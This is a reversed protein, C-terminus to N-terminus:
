ELESNLRVFVLKPEPWRGLVRNIPTFLDKVAPIGKSVHQVKSVNKHFETFM